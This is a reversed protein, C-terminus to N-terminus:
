ICIERDGQRTVTPAEGLSRSQPGQQHRAYMQAGWGWRHGKRPIRPAKVSDYTPHLPRWAVSQFGSLLFSRDQTVHTTTPSPSCCPQGSEPTIPQSAYRPVPSQVHSRPACSAQSPFPSSGTALAWHHTGQHTSPVLPRSCPRPCPALTAPFSPQPSPCPKMGLTDPWWWECRRSCVGTQGSFLPVTSAPLEGPHKGKQLQQGQELGPGTAGRSMWLCRFAKQGLLGGGGGARSGRELCCGASGM